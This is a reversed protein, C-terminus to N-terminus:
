LYEDNDQARQFLDQTTVPEDSLRSLKHDVHGEIEALLNNNRASSFFVM